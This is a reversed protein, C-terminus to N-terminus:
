KDNPLPFGREKKFFTDATSSRQQQACAKELQLSHPSSEM